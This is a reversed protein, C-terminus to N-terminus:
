ATVYSQNNLIIPNGTFDIREGLAVNRLCDIKTAVIPVYNNTQSFPNLVTHNNMRPFDALKQQGTPLYRGGQAGARSAFSM